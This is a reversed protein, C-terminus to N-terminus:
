PKPGTSTATTGSTSRDVDRSDTNGNSGTTSSSVDGGSRTMSRSASNGQSGTATGTRAQAEGSLLLLAFLSATAVLTVHRLSIKPARTM